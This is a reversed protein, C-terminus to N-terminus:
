HTSVPAFRVELAAVGAGEADGRAELWARHAAAWELHLVGLHEALLAGADPGVGHERWSAAATVLPSAPGRHTTVYWDVAEANAGARGTQLTALFRVPFLVAKTVTRADKGALRGPDRVTAVRAEDFWRLAFRVGDLVLDAHTPPVAGARRDAGALLRGHELLDLRDVAPLRVRGAAGHQVDRWRGWFVSLRDAPGPGCGRRTLIRVARMRARSLPGASRVVLALDVDSVEPAYGGHALSGIAYAAEFGSGFLRRAWRVAETLVAEADTSM